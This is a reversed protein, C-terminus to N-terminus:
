KGTRKYESVGQNIAIVMSNIQASSGPTVTFKVDNIALNEIVLELAAKHIAAYRPTIKRIIDDDTEMKTEVEKGNKFEALVKPNGETPEPPNPTDSELSKQGDEVDPKKDVPKISVVDATIRGNWEKDRYTIEIIDNSKVLDTQGWGNFWREGKTGEQMVKLGYRWKTPKYETNKVAEVWGTTTKIETEETM